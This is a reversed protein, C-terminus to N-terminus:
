LQGGEVILFYYIKPHPSPEITLLMQREEMPGLNSKQCFKLESVDTIGPGHARFRRAEAPVQMWTCM